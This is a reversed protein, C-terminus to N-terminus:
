RRVVCRVGHTALYGCLESSGTIPVAGWPLPIRFQVAPRPLPARQVFPLERAVGPPCGSGACPPPGASVPRASVVAFLLLLPLMMTCSISLRYM